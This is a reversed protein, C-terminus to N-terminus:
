QPRKRRVLGEFALGDDAMWQELGELLESLSPASRDLIVM